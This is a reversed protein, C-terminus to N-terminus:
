ELPHKLYRYYADIQHVAALPNHGLLRDKVALVTCPAKAEKLLLSDHGVCLGLLVNFQSGSADLARAQFVPNCMTERAANPDVQDCAELGLASKPAAGAKCAVSAVRFGNTEFVRHVVEAEKRLGICFALGLTQYGMRRAFEVIEVIRPKLPRVAAYGEQRGAYGEAEQLSAQRAFELHEPSLTAELAEGAKQRLRLSPCNAPAKGKADRCYRASWDHPCLACAPLPSAPQDEPAHDPVPYEERDPPAPRRAAHAAARVAGPGSM